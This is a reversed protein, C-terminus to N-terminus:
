FIRSISTGKPPIRYAFPPRTKGALEKIRTWNRVLQQILQCRNQKKGGLFFVGLKCETLAQREAPNRRIEEDRTILFLGETAVIPIWELDPTGQPFRDLLHVSDEGFARMGNSLQRSLNNDFFFRM